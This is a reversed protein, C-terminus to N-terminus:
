GRNEDCFNAILNFARTGLSFFRFSDVLEPDLAAHSQHDRRLGTKHGNTVDSIFVNTMLIALFDETNSYPQLKNIVRHQHLHGSVRRLAHVLEHVLIEHPLTAAKGGSCCRTGTTPTFLVASQQSVRRPATRRPTVTM